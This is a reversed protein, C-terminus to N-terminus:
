DGQNFRVNIRRDNEPIEDPGGSVWVLEGTASRTFFHTKILNTLLRSVDYDDRRTILSSPLRRATGDSAKPPGVKTPSAEPTVPLLPEM